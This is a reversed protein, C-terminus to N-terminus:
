FGDGAGQWGDSCEGRSHGIKELRPTLPTLPPRNERTYSSNSILESNERTPHVQGGRVGESGGEVSWYTKKAHQRGVLRRGNVIRGKRIKLINGIARESLDKINPVLERMAVELQRASENMHDGIRHLIEGSTVQSSGFTAEFATLLQDVSEQEPDAEQNIIIRDMVDGFKGPWLRNARIVTQRVLRDWDEFSAMAGPGLSENFQLHYRILTLAAAVIEPRYMKCIALPNVDFQRAFPRDTEPDIRCVLVRRALDGVAAFNNGTMLMMARNPVSSSESQGLIRDKYNSMTLMTAMAPSDLNGVVNDWLIVRTGSRLEAFLRKRVEEDDGSSIPPMASPETGTGIVSICSALLTKGSGPVPADYSFAPATPLVSRIAATLIAGLHVACDLPTAFPFEKFPDWLTTLAALAQEGTPHLPVTPHQGDGDFLLRTAPDYGLADLITGDLRITPATIVADLPKLKRQVDLSLVARIVQGNPDDNVRVIIGSTLEKYHYFQTLGSVVFTLSFADLCLIKGGEGVTVIETGYDFVDPARRLVDFLSQTTDHLKGRVTEIDRPQRCLKYTTGGHAMSHLCPRAGVLYLKGVVRGGDYDPEIPDLTRMGHYRESKDLVELVSLETRVGGDVITIMWDGMLERRELARLATKKAEEFDDESVEIDVGQPHRAQIVNGARENLWLERMEIASSAIRSRAANRCQEAIATEKATLDPFLERTNIAGGVIGHAVKPLGRRQSLTGSCSAGAAFDIRNSQWVSTDFLPRELMGGSKSVEFRGYGLSWLRHCLAKGAREIDRGDQVLFYIRQGKIGVLEKDDDYICSSTSPWWIYDQMDKFQGSTAADLAEVLEDRLLAATGDKPADYDLLMIAPGSPWAFAEKTRPLKDKPRGLKRWEEETVLDINSVAPTGYTLCHNPQLSALLDALADINDVELTDARGASVHAITEKSLADGSLWFRKTCIKPRTATIKTVTAM